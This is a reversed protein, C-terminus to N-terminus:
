FDVAVPVDGPKPVMDLLRVHVRRNQARGDSSDNDALPAEEGFSVVAVRGPPVTHQTMLYREVSAAREEGLRYNYRDPGTADAYGLIELAYRPHGQLQTALEDLSATADGDLRSDDFAFHVDKATVEQPEFAGSALKEALTAKDYAQDAKVRVQDLDTRVGSIKADTQENSASIQKNVYGKTACGAGLTGAAVLVVSLYAIAVRPSRTRQHIRM